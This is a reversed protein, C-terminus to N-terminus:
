KREPNFVDFTVTVTATYVVQDFQSIDPEMQKLAHFAMTMESSDLVQSLGSMNKGAYGRRPLNQSAIVPQSGVAKPVLTVGLEKEYIRQLNRVKALAQDLVEASHKAKQSNSFTLSLLTVGEKEDVLAAVAQLEKESAVEVTVRSEIEYSKVKSTFRGQTPTSSFKSMHIHQGPIGSKELAALIDTRMQQNQILANKFLRDSNRVNVAVEAKDAEVKVEADGTLTVQGPISRLHATLEDPTGSLQPGALVSLAAVGVMMTIMLMKKM